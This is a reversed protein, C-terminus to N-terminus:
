VFGILQLLVVPKITTQKIKPFGNIMRNYSNFKFDEWQNAIEQPFDKIIFLLIVSKYLIQGKLVLFFM